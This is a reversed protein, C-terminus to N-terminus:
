HSHSVRTAPKRPGTVHDHSRVRWHEPLARGGVAIVVGLAVAVFLAGRLTSADALMGIAVPGLLLGTYGLTGTTSIAAAARPPDIDGALSFAMPVVTSVAVGIAFFGALGLVWGNVTLVATFAAASALGALTLLNRTGLSTRWRDGLLRGGLAGLEFAPYGLAAIAQSADLNDTLYLGSWDAVSGEVMFAALAIGGVLYVTAPLRGKAVVQDHEEDEDKMYTPGLALALPTTVIAAGVVTATFSFGLGACISGAIGGIVAGISWGAHMGNMLHEGYAREIAAAQTNMAIDLIGFAMGFVVAGALLLPYNPALGILALTVTSAPGAFLLARRTGVTVLLRRTLQMTLLAGAGWCLVVTGVTSPRLHLKDVMAPVRVIWVASLGAALVFTLFTGIRARRLAPSVTM